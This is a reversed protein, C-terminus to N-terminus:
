PRAEKMKQVVTGVLSDAGLHTGKWREESPLVDDSCSVDLGADRAGKLAAFVKSGPVMPQIGMDLVAKEIGTKVARLGCLYGTLYAAPTNSTSITWGYKRLEKSHSSALTVDGERRARVVQVVMHKLSKRVVLRNWGSRM